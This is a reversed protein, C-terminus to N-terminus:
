PNPTFAPRVTTSTTGGTNNSGGSGLLVTQNANGNQTVRLFSNPQNQTIFFTNGRGTQTIIATSNTAAMEQLIGAENNSGTQFIRGIQGAGRQEVTASNVGGATSTGENTQRIEIENTFTGPGRAAADGSPGTSGGTGITATGTGTFTQRATAINAGNVSGGAQGIFVNSVNTGTNANRQDVTATSNSGAQTVEANNRSGVQSIQVVPANTGATGGNAETRGATSFEANNQNVMATLNDGDQRVNVSGGLGGQNITATVNTASAAGGTGAVPEIPGDIGGIGTEDDPDTTGFGQGTGQNITATLNASGRRQFLTASARTANQTISGLNNRGAQAVGV